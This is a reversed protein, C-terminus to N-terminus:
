SKKSIMSGKLENLEKNEELIDSKWDDYFGIEDDYVEKSIIKNSANDDVIPDKCLDERYYYDLNFLSVVVIKNYILQGIILLIFGCLQLPKFEEKESGVEVFIFFIWIFLTRTTGMISRTQSSSLKSIMVGIYNLIGIAICCVFCYIALPAKDFMQKVAFLFNEVYLEGHENYSCINEIGLIVKDCPIYTFIPLLIAFTLMGYFSQYAVIQIPHTKYNNALKEEFVFQFSTFFLSIILIIISIYSNEKETKYSFGVLVLGILVIFIGLVQFNKPKRKFFLYSLLCTTLIVGGRLMQFTSASLGFLSINLLVTAIIDCFTPILFLLKNPSKNNNNVQSLYHNKKFLWLFICISEGIFMLFCQFFPHKFPYDLVTKYSKSQLKIFIGQVSGVFVFSLIYIIIRRDTSTNNKNM